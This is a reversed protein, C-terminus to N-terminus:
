PGPATLSIDVWRSRGFLDVLATIASKASCYVTTTCGEAIEIPLEDSGTWSIAMRVHHRGAPVALEEAQGDAVSGLSTGDVVIQYRRLRDRWPVSARVIRM